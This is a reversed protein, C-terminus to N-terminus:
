MIVARPPMNSTVIAGNPSSGSSVGGTVRAVCSSTEPTSDSDASRQTPCFVCSASITRSSSAATSRARTASTPEDMADSSLATLSGPELEPTLTRRPEPTPTEPEPLPLCVCLEHCGRAAVFAATLCRGGSAVIKSSSSSSPSSSLKSWPM